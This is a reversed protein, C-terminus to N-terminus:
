FICHKDIYFLKNCTAAFVTKPVYPLYMSVTQQNSILSVGAKVRQM